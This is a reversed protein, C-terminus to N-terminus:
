AGCCLAQCNFGKANCSSDFGTFPASGCAMSGQSRYWNVCSQQPAVQRRRLPLTAETCCTQACGQGAADCYHGTGTYVGTGCPSSQGAAWDGCTQLLPQVKVDDPFQNSTCCRERCRLGNANCYQEYGTFVFGSGCGNKSDTQWNSCTQLPQVSVNLPSQERRRNQVPDPFACCTQLCNCGNANCYKGEGSFTHGAGCATSGGNDMAWQTCTQLPNIAQRASAALASAAGLLLLVVSSRTHM